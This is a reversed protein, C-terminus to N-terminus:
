KVAPIKLIVTTGRGYESHLSQNAAKHFFLILPMQYLFILSIFYIIGFM